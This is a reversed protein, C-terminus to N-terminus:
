PVECLYFSDDVEVDEMAMRFPEGGWTQKVFVYKRNGSVRLVIMNRIGTCQLKKMGAVTQPVKDRVRTGVDIQEPYIYTELRYEAGANWWTRAM